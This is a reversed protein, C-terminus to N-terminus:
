LTLHSTKNKLIRIGASTQMAFVRLFVEHVWYGIIEPSLFGSM